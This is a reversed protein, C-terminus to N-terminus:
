PHAAPGPQEGLQRDRSSGFDPGHGVRVAGPRSLVRAAARLVSRVEPVTSPSGMDRDRRGGPRTAQGRGRPSAATSPTSVAADPAWSLSTGTLLRSLATM